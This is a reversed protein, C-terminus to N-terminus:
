VKKVSTIQAGAYRARILDRAKFSDTTSIIEQFAKGNLRFHVEFSKM